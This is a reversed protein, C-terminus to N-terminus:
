QKHIPFNIEAVEFDGRINIETGDVDLTLYREGAIVKEDVVEIKHHESDTM